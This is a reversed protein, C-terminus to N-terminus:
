TNHTKIFSFTFVGEAEKKDHYESNFCRLAQMLFEKVINGM